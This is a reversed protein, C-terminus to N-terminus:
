RWRISEKEVLAFGDIVAGGELAKRAASRDPKVEVKALGAEEWASAGPPGELIKTTALWYTGATTKIKPDLGAVRRSSLIGAAYGRVREIARERSKRRAALRREEARLLDAESSLHACVARIKELKEPAEAGLSDLLDLAETDLADLAAGDIDPAGALDMIEGIRHYAEIIDRSTLKTEM